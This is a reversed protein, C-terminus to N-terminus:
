AKLGSADVPLASKSTTFARITDRAKMVPSQAETPLTDVYEFKIQSYKVGAPNQTRELTLRTVVQHYGLGSDLLRMAYENLAKLSTPPVKLVTPMFSGERFLFVRSFDTCAKGKDGRPSSGWQGQPCTPCSHEGDHEPEQGPSNNGRGTLGDSSVCSPPENGGADELSKAWYSKQRGQIFGIVCEITKPNEEGKLTHVTWVTGGGSPVTLQSLDFLGIGQDVLASHLIDLVEPRTTIAFSGTEAPVMGEEKKSM